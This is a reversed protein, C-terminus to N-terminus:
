KDQPTEVEHVITEGAFVADVSHIAGGCQEIVDVIKNYSLSEGEIVVKVKETDQDVETLFISVGKVRKLASLKEALELIAPTHPKLVDLVLKRVNGVESGKRQFRKIDM